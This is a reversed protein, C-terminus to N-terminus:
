LNWYTLCCFYFVSVISNNLCLIRSFHYRPMWCAELLFQYINICIQFCHLEHMCSVHQINEDVFTLASEFISYNLRPVRRFHYRADLLRWASIDSIINTSAFRFIWAHCSGLNEAVCIFPSELNSYNLCLIRSFHNRHMWSDEHWLSIQQRLGSVEHMVFNLMKMLLFLSQNLFESTCVWNWRFYLWRKSTKRKCHARPHDFPSRHTRRNSRRWCTRRVRGPTSWGGPWSWTGRASRRCWSGWWFFLPLPYGTCPFPQRWFNRCQFPHSESVQAVLIHDDSIEVSNKNHLFTFSLFRRSFFTITLIEAGNNPKSLSWSPRNYKQIRVIISSRWILSSIEGFYGRSIEGESLEFRITSTLPM